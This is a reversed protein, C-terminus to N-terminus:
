GVMRSRAQELRELGKSMENVWGQYTGIADPHSKLQEGAHESHSWQRLSVLCRTCSDIMEEGIRVASPPLTVVARILDRNLAYISNHVGASTWEAIDDTKYVQKSLVYARFGTVSAFLSHTRWRATLIASVIAVTLSIASVIVAAIDM